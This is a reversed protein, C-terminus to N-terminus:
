VATSHCAENLPTFLTYYGSVNQEGRLVRNITCYYLELVTSFNYLIVLIPVNKTVTTTTQTEDDQGLLGSLGSERAPHVLTERQGEATVAVM